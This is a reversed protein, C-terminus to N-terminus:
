YDKPMYLHLLTLLSHLCSDQFVLLVLAVAEKVQTPVDSDPAIYFLAKVGHKVLAQPIQGALM